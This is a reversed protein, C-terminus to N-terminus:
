EEEAPSVWTARWRGGAYCTFHRSDDGEDRRVNDATADICGGNLCLEVNFSAIDGVGEVTVTEVDPCPGEASHVTVIDYTAISPESPACALFTTLLLFM